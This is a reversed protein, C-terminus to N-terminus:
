KARLEPKDERCPGAYYVSAGAAHATCDKSYTKGDCGCVPRFIFTCLQPRPKCLGFQDGAGCAYGVPFDCWQNAKCTLGVFGGCVPVDVSKGDKMVDAAYAATVLTTASPKRRRSPM